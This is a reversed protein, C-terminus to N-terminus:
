INKSRHYVGGLFILVEVLRRDVMPMGKLVILEAQPRAASGSEGMWFAFYKGPGM